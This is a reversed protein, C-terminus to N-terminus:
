VNQIFDKSVKIRIVSSTPIYWKWDGHWGPLNGYTALLLACAHEHYVGCSTGYTNQNNKTKKEKLTKRSNRPVAKMTVRTFRWTSKVKHTHIQREHRRIIKFIKFPLAINLVFYFGILGSANPSFFRRKISEFSEM